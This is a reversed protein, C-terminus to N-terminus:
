EPRILRPLNRLCLAFLESQSSIALKQYARKRLTIVTSPQVGLDLAIGETRYGLLIRSCVAQERATLRGSALDILREVFPLTRGASIDAQVIYHACHQRVISTLLTALRSLVSVEGQRFPGSRQTRYLNLYFAIDSSRWIYSVKDVIGVTTYFRQAYSRTALRTPDHRRFIVKRSNTVRSLEAFNPDFRYYQSVYDRTLSRAVSLDVRSAVVVSKLGEPQSYSSITCHDVPVLGAIGDLFAEDFRPTGIAAIAEALASFRGIAADSLEDEPAGAGDRVQVTM